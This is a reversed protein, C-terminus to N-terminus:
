LRVGTSERSVRPNQDVAIINGLALPVTTYLPMECTMHHRERFIQRMKCHPKRETPLIM